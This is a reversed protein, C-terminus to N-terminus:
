FRLELVVEGQAAGDGVLHARLTGSVVYFNRAQRYREASDLGLAVEGRRASATYRDGGTLEVVAAGGTIADRAYTGARLPMSLEFSSPVLTRVGAVPGLAVVGFTVKEGEIAVTVRCDFTGRVAGSLTGTCTVPEGSDQAQSAPAPRAQACAAVPLALVAALLLAVRRRM